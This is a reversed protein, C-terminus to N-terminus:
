SAVVQNSVRYAVLMVVANQRLNQEICALLEIHPMSSTKLNIFNILTQYFVCYRSLLAYTPLLYNVNVKSHIIIIICVRHHCM